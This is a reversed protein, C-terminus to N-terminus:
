PEMLRHPGCLAAASWAGQGDHWIVKILGGRRGGFVFLHGCHPDAKLKEQL